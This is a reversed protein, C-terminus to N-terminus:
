RLFDFGRRVQFRGSGGGNGPSPATRIAEIDVGLLPLRGAPTSAWRFPSLSAWLGTGQQPPDDEAVVQPRLATHEAQDVSLVIPLQRFMQRGGVAPGEM